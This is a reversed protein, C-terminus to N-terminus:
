AEGVEQAGGDRGLWERLMNQVDERVGTSAYAITGEQVFLIVAFGTGPLCAERLRDALARTADTWRQAQAQSVAPRPGTREVWRAVAARAAPMDATSFWAAAGGAGLDFMTLFVDAEGGLVPLLARGTESCRQELLLRLRLDIPSEATNM